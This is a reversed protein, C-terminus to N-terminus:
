KLQGRLAGGPYASTRIEMYFASPNRSIERGLETSVPVWGMLGPIGISSPSLRLVMPGSYGTTGRYIAITQIVGALNDVDVQFAVETRRVSLSFTGSATADGPGPVVANATLLNPGKRGRAAAPEAFSGVLALVLACLSLTRLSM